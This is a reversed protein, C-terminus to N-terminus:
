AAPRTALAFLVPFRQHIGDTQAMDVVNTLVATKFRQLGDVGTVQEIRELTARGGHSWLASWFEEANTYVFEAAEGSVQIDTFGAAQLIAAVGEPTDFAPLARNDVSTSPGAAPQPPLYDKAMKDLWAMQEFSKDWTTVGIRGQSKLVRQFEALARDLQPFFFLAFGCLIYDFSADPFRLEEADMQAVTINAALNLRDITKSTERVMTAALDIGIVRGHVGVAAAAPLLVAGRGTAVDLVHAGKPIQALEVLRRGFYTFFRPGIQDYTPAARDFIGAVQVKHHMMDSPEHNNM